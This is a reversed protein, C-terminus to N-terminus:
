RYEGSTTVRTFNEIVNPGAAGAANTTAYDTLPKDVELSHSDGNVLVVPGCFATVQRVLEAKTDGFHTQVATPDWMDAQIAIMVGKSHYAEACAFSEELWRLSAANRATYEAQGEAAPGNKAQSAPDSDLWNMDSGTVNMTVDTVPGRSWGVNEPYGAQRAM